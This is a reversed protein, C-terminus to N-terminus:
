DKDEIVIDILADVDDIGYSEGDDGTLILSDDNVDVEMEIPNVGVIEVEIEESIAGVVELDTDVPILSKPPSQYNDEDDDVDDKADVQRDLMNEKMM